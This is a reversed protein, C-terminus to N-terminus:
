KRGERLARATNPGFHNAYLLFRHEHAAEMSEAEIVKAIELQKKALEKGEHDVPQGRYRFPWRM